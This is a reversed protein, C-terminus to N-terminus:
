VRKREESTEHKGEKTSLVHVCSYMHCSSENLHAVCKPLNHCVRLEFGRADDAPQWQQAERQELGRVVARGRLDHVFFTTKEELRIDVAQGFFGRVCECGLLNESGDACRREVGLRGIVVPALEHASCVASDNPRQQSLRLGALGHCDPGRRASEVVLEDLEEAALPRPVVRPLSIPLGRRRSSWTMPGIDTISWRFRFCFSVCLSCAVRCSFLFYGSCLFLFFVHMFDAFSLVGLM